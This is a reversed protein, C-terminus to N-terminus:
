RRRASRGSLSMVPSPDEETDAALSKRQEDGRLLSTVYPDWGGDTADLDADQPADLARPETHPSM